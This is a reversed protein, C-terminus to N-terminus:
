VYDPLNRAAITFALHKDPGYGLSRMIKRPESRGMWEATM